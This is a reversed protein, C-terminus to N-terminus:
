DEPDGFEERAEAVLKAEKPDILSKELQLLLGYIEKQPYGKTRLKDAAWYVENHEEDSERLAADLMKMFPHAM